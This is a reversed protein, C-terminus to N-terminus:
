KATVSERLDKGPKFQPLRKAPVPVIQGTRPNRGQRPRRHNLSFSGFGRIEIRKGQSVASSLADLIVRVALEVDKAAFQPPWAALRNILESRTM